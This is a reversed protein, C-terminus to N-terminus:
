NRLQAGGGRFFQFAFFFSFFAKLNQAGRKRIGPCAGAIVNYLKDLKEKIINFHWRKVCYTDRKRKKLSINQKFTNWTINMINSNRDSNM